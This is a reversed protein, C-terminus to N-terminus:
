PLLSVCMIMCLKFVQFQYWKPFLSKKNIDESEHYSFINNSDSVIGKINLGLLKQDMKSSGM